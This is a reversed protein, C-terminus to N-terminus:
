FEEPYNLYKKTAPHRMRKWLVGGIITGIPFNFMSFILMVRTFPISFPKRQNIGALPIIYLVLIAIYAVAIIILTSMFFGPEGFARNGNVILIITGTIYAITYIAIFFGYFGRVGSLQFRGEELIDKNMAAGSPAQQYQQYPQAPQSSQYQQAPQHQQAPQAPQSSQYQQAPQHQQSPQLQQAPQNSQEPQSVKLEKLQVGCGICVVASKKVPKGCEPCYIEDPGKSRTVEENM